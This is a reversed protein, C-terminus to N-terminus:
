YSVPHLRYAQFRRPRLVRVTGASGAVRATADATERHALAARKASGIIVKDVVLAQLDVLNPTMVASLSTPSM